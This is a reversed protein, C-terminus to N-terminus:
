RDIINVFLFGLLQEAAQERLIYLPLNIAGQQFRDCCLMAARMVAMSAALEFALSMISLSVSYM